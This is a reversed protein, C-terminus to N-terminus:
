HQQLYFDKISGAVYELQEKTLEPYIPLALTETSARDAVPYQSPDIELNSFCKQKHLPLPYYVETGIDRKALFERLEDRSRAAIAYQNYVHRTTTAAVAPRRLYGKQELDNLLDHYMCANKGRAATWSDLYKIKVRLIEAQITDLRSNMGITQHFYKPKSGHVRLIKLKEAFADDNTLMMGGDGACGLNKSPFFSLTAMHGISGMERAKYSAGIAQAGDEIVVLNHKEAIQMIADMDAMQGYLHVPIIAKTNKTVLREIKKVDIGYFDQDIDCFVPTAGVLSVSGATAFFTFTPIIVEDGPGIGAAMLALRLADSGNACAVAHKVACYREIDKEFEAVSPGMVYQASAMSRLVAPELEERIAEYQAQLNLLPVKM